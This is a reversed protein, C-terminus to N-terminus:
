CLVTDSLSNRNWSIVMGQDRRAYIDPLFNEFNGIEEISHRVWAYNRDENYLWPVIWRNVLPKLIGNEVGVTLKNKVEAGDPGDVFVFEVDAVTIGRRSARLAFKKKDRQTVELRENTSHQPNRGYAEVLTIFDGPSLPGDKDKKESRLSIHDLPHSVLYAPYMQEDIVLKLDAYVGYWWSLMDTTVDRVPAHEVEFLTRGDPLLTVKSFGDDLRRLEWGFDRVEPLNM